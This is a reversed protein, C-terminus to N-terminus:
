TGYLVQGNLQSATPGLLNLLSVAILGLLRPRGFAIAVSMLRMCIVSSLNISHLHVTLISKCIIIVSM